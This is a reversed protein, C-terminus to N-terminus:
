KTITRSRAETSNLPKADECHGRREKRDENMAGRGGVVGWERTWWLSWRSLADARERGLIKASNTVVAM